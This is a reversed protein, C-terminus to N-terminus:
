RVGTLFRREMDRALDRLSRGRDRDSVPKGDPVASVPQSAVESPAPSGGPGPGGESAPKHAVSARGSPPAVPAAVAPSAHAPGAISPVVPDPMSSVPAASVPAASVPAASVPPPFSPAAHRHGPGPAPRESEALLLYALAVGVVLNFLVFKM